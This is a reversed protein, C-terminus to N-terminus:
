HSRYQDGDTISFTYSSFFMTLKKFEHEHMCRGQGSQVQADTFVSTPVIVYFRRGSSLVVPRSLCQLVRLKCSEAIRVMDGLAIELIV